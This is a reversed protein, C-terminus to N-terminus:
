PLSDYLKRNEKEVFALEGNLVKHKLEEVTRGNQNLNLGTDCVCQLFEEDDIKEIKKKLLHYKEVDQRPLKLAWDYGQDGWKRLTEIEKRRCDKRFYSRLIDDPLIWHIINNMSVKAQVYKEKAQEPLADYLERDKEEVLM